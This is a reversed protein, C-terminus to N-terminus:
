GFEPGVVAAVLDLRESPANGRSMRTFPRQFSFGCEELHAVLSRSPAVIDIAVPLHGIASLAASLLSVADRGERAILPGIHHYHEGSRGLVYSPVSGDGDIIWASEPLVRLLHQLVVVRDAGFIERDFSLVSALGRHDLPRCAEAVSRSVSPSESKWRQLEYDARFGLREYVPRGAPTADLRLCACTQENAAIVQEMLRTGIGQGRWQHDVLLMSLWCTAGGYRISTITGVVREGAVAVFCGEPNAALFLEWDGPTQNWREDHQLRRAGSLDASSMPRISTLSPM